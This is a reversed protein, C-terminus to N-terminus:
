DEYLYWPCSSDRGIRESEIDWWHVKCTTPLAPLAEDESGPSCDRLTKLVLASLMMEPGPWGEGHWVMSENAPM